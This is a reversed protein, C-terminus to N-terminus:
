GGHSRFAALLQQAAGYPTLGGAAVQREIRDIVRQVGADGRFSQRLGDDIERWLWSKAQARRRAESTPETVTRFAEVHRWLEEVDGPEFASVTLVCPRWNEHAARLLAIVPAFAAATMDDAAKTQGDAKTVAILDAHELIGRKMGQLEDGSGSGLLLVFMDVMDAVAAESQGVGVTEVIVVDFGAAECVLMAERTRRAVGGLMDGAPSPRIFARDDRALRTMRTKDALISGGSLRSSPDVALVALRQGQEVIRAGLTEILTSKGVGPAGSIGIRLAGGAHPLVEALLEDIAARNDDRTSEVLTIARALARRDGERLAAALSAGHETM